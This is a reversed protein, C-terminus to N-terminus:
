PLVAWFVHIDLSDATLITAGAAGFNTNATCSLTVTQQAATTSYAGGDYTQATNGVAIFVNHAPSYATADTGDGLSCSVATVAAGAFAESHKLRVGQIVGNAPLTFVAATVTTSAAIFAANTYVVTYKVWLPGALVNGLQSVMQANTGDYVVEVWQGALIDNDALDTTIGGAMKKITLAGKGNFNISAVGTNVTNAKFRYRTGTVYSAIAPSLDCAYTDSAGADLCFVSTSADTATFGPNMTYHTQAAAGVVVLLILIYRRMMM